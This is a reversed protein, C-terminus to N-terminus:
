STLVKDMRLMAPQVSSWLLLVQAVQPKRLKQRLSRPGKKTGASNQSTSSYRSEFLTLFPSDHFCVKPPNEEGGGWMRQFAERERWCRNWDNQIGYRPLWNSTGLTGLWRRVRPHSGM